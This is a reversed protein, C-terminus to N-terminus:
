SGYFLIKAKIFCLGTTQSVDVKTEYKPKYLNLKLALLFDKIQTIKFSQVM